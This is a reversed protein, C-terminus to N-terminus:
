IPFGEQYRIDHCYKRTDSLFEVAEEWLGNQSIFMWLFFNEREMSRIRYQLEMPLAITIPTM